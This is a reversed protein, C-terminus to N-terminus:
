CLEFRFNRVKSFFIMFIMHMVAQLIDYGVTIEDEIFWKTCLFPLSALIKAKVCIITESYIEAFFIKGKCLLGIFWPVTYVIKTPIPYM